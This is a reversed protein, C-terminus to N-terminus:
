GVREIGPPRWAGTLVDQRPWYLRLAVNFTGDPAPLWNSEKESGPWDQQLHLSLVGDDDVAIEDLDGLAYRDLPNRVLAGRRDYMTVSWFAHVPPLDGPAFSLRYKHAGDLAHGHSDTWSRFCSVDDPLGAGLSVRASVARFLYDIGYRGTTRSPVDWGNITAGHAVRAESELLERATAVGAVVAADLGLPDVARGPGIGIYSFRHLAHSDDSSPPNALMLSNLRSFFAGAELRALEDVPSPTADVDPSAPADPLPAHVQGWASLPTLTFRQQLTRVAACDRRNYTRLRIILCVSRTPAELHELGAPIIGSWRPGTILYDARNNGTARTGPDAFVNTWADLLQMLCYRTKVPPVSLVIPEDTLDLWAVSTLTDADPPSVLQPGPSRTRRLHALQNIPARGGRAHTTATARRRAADM